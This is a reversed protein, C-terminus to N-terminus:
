LEYHETVSNILTELMHDSSLYKEATSDSVDSIAVTGNRSIKEYIPDQMLLNKIHEVYSETTKFHPDRLGYLQLIKGCVDHELRPMTKIVMSLPIDSIDIFEPYSEPRYYVVIACHVLTMTNSTVYLFLKEIPAYRVLDIFYSENLDAIESNSLGSIMKLFADAM